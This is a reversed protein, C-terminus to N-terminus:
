KALAIQHNHIEKNEIFVCLYGVCVYVCECVHNMYISLVHKSYFLKNLCSVNVNYPFIPSAQGYDVPPPVAVVGVGRM